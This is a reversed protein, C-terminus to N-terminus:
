SRCAPQRPHGLLLASLHAPPCLVVDTLRDSESRVSWRQSDRRAALGTPINLFEPKM